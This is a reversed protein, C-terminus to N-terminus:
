FQLWQSDKGNWPLGSHQMHIKLNKSFSNALGSTLLQAFESFRWWWEGPSDFLQAPYPLPQKLPQGPPLEAKKSDPSNSALWTGEPSQLYKNPMTPRQCPLQIARNRLSTRLKLIRNQQWRMYRLNQHSFNTISDAFTFPSGSEM